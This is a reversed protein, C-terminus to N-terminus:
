MGLDLVEENHYTVFKKNWNSSNFFLLKDSRFIETSIEIIPEGRNTDQFVYSGGFRDDFALEADNMLTFGQSEMFNKLDNFTDIYLNYKIKLHNKLEETLPHNLMLIRDINNGQEKNQESLFSVLKQLTKSTDELKNILSIEGIRSQESLLRKFLGALQNRLFSVIDAVADFGHITNNKNYSKIKAIFEYIKINDVFRYKIDNSKNLSYTEYETLVNKEIFIYVQKNNKIATELEMQTVSSKEDVNSQSGYRGGIICILIDINDIEKYCYEELRKQNGYPIDGEENRVTEYGLQKLFNDLDARVQKQDYFTSSIFIIPKAM